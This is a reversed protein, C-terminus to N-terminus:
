AERVGFAEGSGIELDHRFGQEQELVEQCRLCHETWPLAELRRAPIDEGCLACVGFTGQDIRSLASEIKRVQGSRQSSLQFLSEKSVSAVSQDGSDQPSIDVVRSEDGLRQLIQSSEDRQAELKRKFRQIETNKM